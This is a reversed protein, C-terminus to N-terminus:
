KTQTKMGGGRGKGGTINIKSLRRVYGGSHSVEVKWTNSPTAQLHRQLCMCVPNAGKRVCSTFSPWTQMCLSMRSGVYECSARSVGFLNGVKQLCTVFQCGVKESFAVWWSFIILFSIWNRNFDDGWFIDLIWLCLVCVVFPSGIQSWNNLTNKIQIFVITRTIICFFSVTYGKKKRIQLPFLDTRMVQSEMMLGAGGWKLFTDYIQLM